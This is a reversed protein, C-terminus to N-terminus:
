SRHTRRSLLTRAAGLVAGGVAGFVMDVPLNVLPKGYLVYAIGAVLGGAAGALAGAIAGAAVTAGRGGTRYGTRVLILVPVLIGIGLLPVEPIWSLSPTLGLAAFVAAFVGLAAGGSLGERLVVSRM